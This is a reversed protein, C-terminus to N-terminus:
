GETIYTNAVLAADDLKNYLDTYEVKLGASLEEIKINFM